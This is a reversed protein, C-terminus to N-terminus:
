GQTLLDRYGGNCLALGRQFDRRVRVKLGAGPWDREVRDRGYIVAAIERFTAGARRGDIAILADRLRKSHASWRPAIASSAPASLLNHLKTLLRANRPIDASSHILLSLSIPAVPSPAVSIALQLTGEAARLLVHQRGAADLLIHEVNPLIRFCFGSSNGSTPDTRAATLHFAANTIEPLWVPCADTATLDPDAFAACAGRRRTPCARM